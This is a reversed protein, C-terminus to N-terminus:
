GTLSRLRAPLDALDVAPADVGGADLERFGTGTLVAVVEDSEDLDGSEVLQRIGALTTASAPEVCFGADEALRAKADLIEDDPVSVVAGGTARAAALARTGSPPDANAISYAVTEGATTAAVEESGERFARAIPDCAAAQVLYLRPLADADLLGAADLERLAKWAASAHGGSSVPLVIADPADPDAPSSGSGTRPSRSSDREGRVFAECIELATAKQGAVRLPTDSNVFEVPSDAALTEYYLTGYDGSVRLVRPDYQAIAALREAPLDDPVLVVCETGLGAAHAAVSIAMNGHSVTGVWERDADAAWAAGVASGRDKFSGTPNESEDKLWLRCGAYDDLRDARVLPTAGSASAVGSPAGDRPAVPLLDAYRWVGSSPESPSRGSAPSAPWEFGEPDTDFWLPEGCDCRKRDPFEATEGCRYCVLRTM